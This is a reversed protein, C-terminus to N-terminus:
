SGRKEVPIGRLLAKLASGPSRHWPCRRHNGADCLDPSRCLGPVMAVTIEGVEGLQARATTEVLYDCLKRAARAALIGAVRGPDNGGFLLPKTAKGTHSRREVRIAPLAEAVATLAAAHRELECPVIEEVTHMDIHSARRLESSTPRYFRLLELLAEAGFIEQEYSLDDRPPDYPKDPSEPPRSGTFVHLLAAARAANAAKECREFDERLRESTETPRRYLPLYRLVAQWWPLQRIIEAAQRLVRAQDELELTTNDALTIRGGRALEDQYPLHIVGLQMRRILRAVKVPDAGSNALKAM